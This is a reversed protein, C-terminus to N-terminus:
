KLVSLFWYHLVVGVIISLCAPFCNNRIYLHGDAHWYVEQYLNILILPQSHARLVKWRNTIQIIHSWIPHLSLAPKAQSFTIQGASIHDSWDSAHLCCRCGVGKGGGVLLDFPMKLLLSSILETWWTANVRTYGLSCCSALQLANRACTRCIWRMM